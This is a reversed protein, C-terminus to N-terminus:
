LIVRKIGQKLIEVNFNILLGKRIKALKLYTMLQATHIPHLKDVSKLELIVSNEVIVDAYLDGISRGRYDIDIQKQRQFELQREELEICLAEEYVSELLGPGLIRHADIAAGIIEFTLPDQKDETRMMRKSKGETDETGRHHIGRRGRHHFM